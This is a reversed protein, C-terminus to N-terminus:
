HVGIPSATRHHSTPPLSRCCNAQLTFLAFPLCFTPQPTFLFSLLSPFPYHPPSRAFPRCAFLPIPLTPFPLCPRAAPMCGDATLRTPLRCRNAAIPPPFMIQTPAPQPSVAPLPRTFSPSSRCCIPQLLDPSCPLPLVVALRSRHSAPAHNPFTCLHPPQLYDGLQPFGQCTRFPTVLDYCSPGYFDIGEGEEDDEHNNGDQVDDNKRSSSVDDDADLLGYAEKHIDLDTSPETPFRRMLIITRNQYFNSIPMLFFPLKTTTSNIYPTAVPPAKQVATKKEKPCPLSGSGSTKKSQSKTLTKQNKSTTNTKHELLKAEFKKALNLMEEQHRAAQQDFAQNFPAQCDNPTGTRAWPNLPVQRKYLNTQFLFSGILFIFPTYILNTFQQQTETRSSTDCADTSPTARLRLLLGIGTTETGSTNIKFLHSSRMQICLAVGM